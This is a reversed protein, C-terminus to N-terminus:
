IRTPKLSTVKGLSQHIGPMKMGVQRGAKLIQPPSLGLSSVGAKKLLTDHKRIAKQRDTYKRDAHALVAGITAGLARHHAKPTHMLLGTTFTGLTAGGVVPAAHDRFKEYQTKQAATKQLVKQATALGPTVMVEPKPASLVTQPSLGHLSIEALKTLEDRCAQFTGPLM